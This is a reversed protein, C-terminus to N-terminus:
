HVFIHCVFYILLKCLNFVIAETAVKQKQSATNNEEIVRRQNGSSCVRMNQLSDM